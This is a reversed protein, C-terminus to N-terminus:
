RWGMAKERAVFLEKNARECDNFEAECDAMSKDMPVYWSQRGYLRRYEESQFTYGHYAYIANLLMRLSTQDLLSMDEVTFRDTDLKYDGIYTEVSDVWSTDRGSSAPTNTPAELPAGQEEETEGAGADEYMKEFFAATIFLNQPIDNFALTYLEFTDDDNLQFQVTAEVEQDMYMCKGTCEVIDIGDDSEFYQWTSDSLFGDLLEGLTIDSSYETFYGNKVCQVEESESTAFKNLIDTLTQVAQNVSCSCLTLIMCAALIIATVKKRMKINGRKLTNNKPANKSETKMITDYQFM